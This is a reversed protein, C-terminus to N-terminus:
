GPLSSTVHARKEALGVAAAENVMLEYEGQSPSGTCAPAFVSGTAAEVADSDRRAVLATHHATSPMMTTESARSNQASWRSRGNETTSSGVNTRGATWMAAVPSRSGWQNPWGPEVIM